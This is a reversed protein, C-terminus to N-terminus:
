ARRARRVSAAGLLAIGFLALSGPEPVENGPTVIEVPTYDITLSGGQLTLDGLTDIGFGLQKSALLDALLSGQPKFSGSLSFSGTYTDTHTSSETNTITYHAIRKCSKDKKDYDDKSCENKGKMYTYHSFVEGGKTPTGPIDSTTLSTSGTLLLGGISLSASEIPNTVTYQTTKTITVTSKGDNGGNPDIVVPNSKTTTTVGPPTLLLDANDKFQFSFDINEVSFNAPLSSFGFSGTYGPGSLYIPMSTLDLTIQAASAQSAAAFALVALASKIHHQIKMIDRTQIFLNKDLHTNGLLAHCM